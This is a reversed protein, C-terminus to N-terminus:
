RGVRLTGVLLAPDTVPRSRTSEVCVYATPATAPPFSLSGVRGGDEMTWVRRNPTALALAAMRLPAADAAPGVIVVRPPPDFFEDVALAFEAGGVGYRGAAPSLLALTREAVARYSREGTALVLDLYLRAAAANREFPRERYRLAGASEAQPLHDLFGGDEAWLKAEMAAVLGRAADLFSARGTAQALAVCARAVEVMDTLLGPVAPKGEPARFHYLLGGPAAMAALLVELADAAREVWEPRGLRGGAEALARIWAANADTYVVPDLLSEAKADRAAADLAYYEEDAALSGGWLGDPLRLRAEAWAVTREAVERLDRRDLLHAGLAYIRLLGANVELLKERRPETWDPALAYRFFGGDIDDWLEGALMGDLTQEALSRSQEDALRAAQVFLLEVADTLPFKPADGFGGNRPDFADLLAAVVDDAAERRVLGALVQRGRAAELARRRRDIEVQLEERRERWAALVGAAVKGFEEPEVYTGAWLVEGTPTLFANTPWGSAIYREQVHPFQDADVRIPVLEANILDILEGDSYTTEDMRQCWGCWVATLNLLIPRDARIADDFTEASWPRWRIEAARNPRPSFRFSDAM